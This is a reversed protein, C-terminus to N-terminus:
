IQVGANVGQTVSLLDHAEKEGMKKIVTFYMYCFRGNSNNELAHTLPGVCMQGDGQLQWWGDRSCKEGQLVSM